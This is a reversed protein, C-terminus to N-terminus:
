NCPLFTFLYAGTALCFYPGYAFFDKRSKFGTALLILASVGGLIAAILVVISLSEGLWIGLVAVLKVDGGGIGGKTLTMLAFFIGGGILAAALHEILSFKLIIVFFGGALAFPLLIRDFIIYQEFDTVVILALFFTATMLYAAQLQSKEACFIMATFFLITMFIKRYTPKIHVKEPFSLPANPLGYLRDIIKSSVLATIVSAFFYIATM